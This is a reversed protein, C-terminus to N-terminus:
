TTFKESAASVKIVDDVAVFNAGMAKPETRQGLPKNISSLCVMVQYVRNFRGILQVPCNASVIKRAELSTMILVHSVARVPKM